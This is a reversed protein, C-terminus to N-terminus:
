MLLSQSLQAFMGGRSFTVVLSQVNRLEVKVCNPAPLCASLCEQYAIYPLVIIGSNITWLLFLCSESQATLIGAEM